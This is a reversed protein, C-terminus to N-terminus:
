RVSWKYAWNTPFCVFVLMIKLVVAKSVGVSSMRRTTNNIKTFSRIMKNTVALLTKKHKIRALIHHSQITLKIKSVILNM